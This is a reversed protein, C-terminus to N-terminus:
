REMCGPTNGPCDCRDTVLSLDDKNHIVCTDATLDVVPPESSCAIWGSEVSTGTCTLGAKVFVRRDTELAVCASPDLGIETFVINCGVV